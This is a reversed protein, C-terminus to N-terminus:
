RPWASHPHSSIRFSIPPLKRHSPSGGGWSDGPREQHWKKRTESQFVGKPSLSGGKTAQRTGEMGPTGQPVNVKWHSSRLQTFFGLGSHSPCKSQLSPESSCWQPSGALRPRTHLGPRPTPHPCPDGHPCLLPPGGHETRHRETEIVKEQAQREMGGM